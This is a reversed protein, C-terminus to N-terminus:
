WCVLMDLVYAFVIQVLILPAYHYVERWYWGWYVYISTHMTLQVYHVPRPLFEYFLRRGTRSAQQKLAVGFILLVAAAGLVSWQMTPNASVTPLFALCALLLNAALALRLPPIRNQVIPERKALTAMLPISRAM